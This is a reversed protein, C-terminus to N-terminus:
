SYPINIEDRKRRYFNYIEVFEKRMIEQEVPNYFKVFDEFDRRIAELEGDSLDYAEFDKGRKQLSMNFFEWARRKCLSELYKREM